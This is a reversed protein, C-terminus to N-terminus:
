LTRAPDQARSNIPAVPAQRTVPRGWERLLGQFLAASLVALVASGALAV